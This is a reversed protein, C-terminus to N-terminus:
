MGMIMAKSNGRLTGNLTLKGYFTLKANDEASVLSIVNSSDEKFNEFEVSAITEKNTFSMESDYEARILTRTGLVKQVDVPVHNIAITGGAIELKANDQTNIVSQGSIGGGIFTVKDNANGAQIKFNSTDVIQVAPGTAGKDNRWGSVTQGDGFSVSENSGQQYVNQGVNSLYGYSGDPMIEGNAAYVDNSGILSSSCIAMLLVSKCMKRSLRKKM